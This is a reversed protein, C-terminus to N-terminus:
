LDLFLFRVFWTVSCTFLLSFGNTGFMPASSSDDSSPAGTPTVTPSVTPAATPSSPPADPPDIQRDQGGGCACCADRALVDNGSSDALYGYTDCMSVDKEDEGM